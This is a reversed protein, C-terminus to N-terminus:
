ALLLLSPNHTPSQEISRRVLPPRGVEGQSYLATRRYVLPFKRPGSVVEWTCSSFEETTSLSRIECTLPVMVARSADNRLELTPGEVIMGVKQYPGKQVAWSREKCRPYDNM